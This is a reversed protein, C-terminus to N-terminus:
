VKWSESNITEGILIIDRKNMSAKGTMKSQISAYSYGFEIMLYKLLQSKELKNLTSRYYSQLDVDTLFKNNEKTM